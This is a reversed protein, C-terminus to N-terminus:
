NMRISPARFSRHMSCWGGSSRRRRRYGACFTRSSMRRPILRTGPIPPCCVSISPCATRSSGSGPSARRIPLAASSWIPVRRRRRLVTSALPISSTTIAILCGANPITPCRASSLSVALSSSCLATVSIPSSSTISCGPLLGAALQEFTDFFLLLRYRRRTWQGALTVQTDALRNLEAVFTATLEGIPDELRASARRAQGMGYSHLVHETTMKVGERLLPGVFPVGEVAAGAFDPARQLVADQMTEQEAQLRYMADKYRALARKFNNRMRLQSAFKEMMSAATAQREDVRATFCYERYAASGAEDIIRNILTSKGVGGDGYVSIINYTPDEPKLIHERFFQLESARGVFLKQIDAAPQPSRPDNKKVFPM